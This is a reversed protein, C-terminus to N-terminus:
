EEEFPLENREEKSLSHFQTNREMYEKVSPYVTITGNEEYIRVEHIRRLFAKWSEPNEKQVDRYQEELTWNSVIYVTEYCAYKNAYRAPLEISYIDCYNLMDSIRLGSRFEDFVLVNQCAYSDFPHQYDNVRYVNEDGHEDLVGRTKGTGTAGSIYIVKLNIRRKTKYKEILLTTRVKDLKDINLIYDNNASLIEANSYGNEIMQFLEEMDQLKGKQTPIIGWEEYTGAVSTESKETDEWRGKKKIYDVNQQATGHAIEIHASPFHRKITSIRVRSGCFIYVHTHYTGLEGIEDSMAFFKLTPLNEILIKKIQFHDLGRVTPNNITIQFANRQTDTKKVIKKNSNMKNGGKFPLRYTFYRRGNKRSQIYWRFWLRLM